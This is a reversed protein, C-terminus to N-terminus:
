FLHPLHSLHRCGEKEILCILDKVSLQTLDKKKLEERAKNLLETLYEIKAKRTIQQQELLSQYLLFEYNKIEKQLERNWKILTSKSKNLSKAIANYSCGEARLEIFKQKAVSDKM